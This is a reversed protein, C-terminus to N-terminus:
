QILPSFSKYWWSVRTGQHTEEYRKIRLYESRVDHMKWVSQIKKAAADRRISQYERQALVMRWAAQIRMAARRSAMYQQRIERARWASQIKVAAASLVRGRAGELQALQGARLFVRTKGVQWGELGAGYLVRKSIDVLADDSMADWDINSSSPNLGLETRRAHSLLPAYRQAFPLFRKRTPYGACAIRVAELVGGARLQELVYAPTLDGPM